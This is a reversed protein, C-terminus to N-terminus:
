PAAPYPDRPARQARDQLIQGPQAQQNHVAAGVEVGAAPGARAGV